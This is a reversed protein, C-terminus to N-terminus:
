ALGRQWALGCEQCRDSARDPLISPQNRMPSTSGAVSTTFTCLRLFSLSQAWIVADALSIEARQDYPVDNIPDETQDSDPVTNDHYTPEVIATIAKWRYPRTRKDIINWIM